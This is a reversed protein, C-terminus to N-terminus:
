QRYVPPFLETVKKDVMKAADSAFPCRCMQRLAGQCADAAVRGVKVASGDGKGSKWEGRREKQRMGRFVYEAVRLNM